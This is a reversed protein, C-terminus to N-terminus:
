RWLKILMTMTNEQSFYISLFYKLFFKNQYYGVKPMSDVKLLRTTLVVKKYEKM